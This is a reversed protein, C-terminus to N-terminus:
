KIAEMHIHDYPIRLLRQYITNCVQGQFSDRVPQLYEESTRVWEGRDRAVVWRSLSTQNPHYVPDLTTLRGGPKLIRHAEKVFAFFIEDEIHHLVGIAIVVDFSSSPISNLTLHDGVIFKSNQARYMKNAKEVCSSLPEIGLYSSDSFDLSHHGIGCGFDLVKDVGIPKLVEDTIRLKSANSIVSFQFLKYFQANDFVDALKM